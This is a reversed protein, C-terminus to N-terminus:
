RGMLLLGIWSLRDAWPQKSVRSGLLGLPMLLASLFLVTVLVIQWLMAGLDPVVRWAIFAHLVASVILLPLFNM